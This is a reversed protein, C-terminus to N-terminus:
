TLAEHLGISIRRVKDSEAPAAGSVISQIKDLSNALSIDVLQLTMLLGYPLYVLRLSVKTTATTLLVEEGLVIKLFIKNLSLDIIRSDLMAKAVFQGIM